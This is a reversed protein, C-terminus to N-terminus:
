RSNKYRLVRTLLNSRNGSRKLFITHGYIMSYIRKMGGVLSMYIIIPSLLPMILAPVHNNPEKKNTVLVGNIQKPTM